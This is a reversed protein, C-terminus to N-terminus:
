PRLEKEWFSSWHNEQGGKWNGLGTSKKWNKELTHTKSIPNRAETNKPWSHKELLGTTNEELEKSGSTSLCEWCFARQTWLTWLLFPLVMWKQLFGTHLFGPEEWNGPPSFVCLHLRAPVVSTLTLLILTRSLPHQGVLFFFFFLIRRQPSRSRGSSSTLRALDGGMLSLLFRLVTSNERRFFWGNWLASFSSRAEAAGWQAINELLPSRRCFELGWSGLGDQSSAFGWASLTIM